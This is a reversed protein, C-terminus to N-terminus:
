WKPSLLPSKGCHCLCHFRQEHNRSRLTSYILETLDGDWSWSRPLDQYGNTRRPGVAAFQERPWKQARVIRRDLRHTRSDLEGALHDREAIPHAAPFRSITDHSAADTTVCLIRYRWLARQHSHRLTHGPGRGRGNGVNKDSSM